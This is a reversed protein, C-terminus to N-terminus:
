DELEDEFFKKIDENTINDQHIIYVRAQDLEQEVTTIKCYGDDDVEAHEIDFPKVLSEIASKNEIVLVRVKQPEDEDESELTEIGYADLYFSLAVRTAHALGADEIQITDTIKNVELYRRM